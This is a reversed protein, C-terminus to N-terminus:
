HVVTRRGVPRGTDNLIINSLFARVVQTDTHSTCQLGELSGVAAVWLLDDEVSITNTFALNLAKASRFDSLDLLCDLVSAKLGTALHHVDICGLTHVSAEKSTVDAAESIGVRASAYVASDSILVDVLKVQHSNCSSLTHRGWCPISDDVVVDLRRRSLDLGQSVLEAESVVVNGTGDLFRGADPISVPQSSQYAFTSVPLMFWWSHVLAELLFFWREIENSRRM